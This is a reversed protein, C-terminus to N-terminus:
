QAPILRFIQRQGGAGGHGAYSSSGGHGHAHASSFSFNDLIKHKLNYATFKCEEM